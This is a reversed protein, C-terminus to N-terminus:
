DHLSAESICTLRDALWSLIRKMVPVSALVSIHGHRLRWIEPRRWTEWLDEITEAPALLDYRSQVLLLKEPSLCPQREILNLPGLNVPVDVLNRRIPECFALEAFAREMHAVPTILVAAALKPELCTTMGTVWGGLSVGALAIGPVGEGLLWQILARTDTVAQRFANLTVVLDSSLFCSVTGPGRPRRPGHFPLVMAATNLGQRALRRAFWPYKLNYEVEGQLGHLFIACPRTRWDKGSRHLWGRVLDNAPWPTALDSRFEFQGDARLGITSPVSPDPFFPEQHLLARAQEVRAPWPGARNVSRCGYQIARRDIWEYFAQVM